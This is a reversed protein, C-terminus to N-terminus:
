SFEENLLAVERDSLWLEGAAINEALHGRTRTGPILLVNPAIALLWALAVQPTSADHGAAVAAVVPNTLIADRQAQPFGLPCFPVFAIEWARCEHLVPRSDRAALNFFNEGWANETIGVARVLHAPSVNSIWIGGILGQDRAT